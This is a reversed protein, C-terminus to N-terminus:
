DGENEGGEVYGQTRWKDSTTEDSSPSIAVVSGDATNEVKDIPLVGTTDETTEDPDIQNLYEDVIPKTLYKYFGRVAEERTLKIIERYETDTLSIIIPLWGKRQLKSTFARGNVVVEDVMDDMEVLLRNSDPLTQFQATIKGKYEKTMKAEKM